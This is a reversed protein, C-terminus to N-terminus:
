FKYNLGVRVVNDTYKHHITIDCVLGGICGTASPITTNFNGLDVYLYELKATWNPTFGYELGGGLTWGTRNTTSDASAFTAATGPCGQICMSDTTKISGFAVGGTAYFLARDFTLGLRGRITGLFNAKTSNTLVDGAAPLPGPYVLARSDSGGLWNADAEIGVMWRPDVQWNYGLQIGGIVGEPKLTTPSLADLGPGPFGLQDGTTTISDSGWHGGINAGVYFGTWNYSPVIVPAKYVPAKVPLDAAMAPAAVLAALAASVLVLKKM